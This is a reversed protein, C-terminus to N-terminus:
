KYFTHHFFQKRFEATILMICCIALIALFSPIDPTITQFIKQLFPIFLLGLEALLLLTPIITWKNKWVRLSFMTRDGSVVDFFIFLQALALNVFALTRALELNGSKWGLWFSLLTVLATLPSVETFWRLDHSTFLSNERRPTRKMINHHRTNLALALAPLGDTILNIYLIQIPLLIFPWGLIGGITLALIEGINCGILYKMAAKMNDYIIRGEEVATVITAYNDDTIIMDAAEKAVDTGTIGMAVGINAQKLALADNVGDGTAAVIEGADQLLRVIELKQEPTTRAFVAFTSLRSKKQVSSLTSFQNGTIVEEGKNMLGIHKAITFATLENDGTIMVTRIGAERALQISHAVEPRAPDSIGVFGLFTLDSEVFERSQHEWTIKKSALAIVRLGEKAFKEFEDVIQSKEKHTLEREGDTSIFRTSRALISEPAGKTYVNTGTEDAWVVSMTKTTADFAFEEKLTGSERLSDLNIKTHHALILLAGETRDGVIDFSDRNNKPVLSANNCLVGTKILKHLIKNSSLHLQETTISANQFWIRTVRMENKTLTGTKDTAIVTINGLAEIASLKRLIARKKAMRQTGIALTVTIVAPLGEPVAAVALSIATLFITLLSIGKTLGIAIIIVAAIIAAISLQQAVRKLKIELPTEDKQILSLESAIKGFRTQMGTAVVLATARGKVVTTGLFVNRLDKTDADKTVPMSEGTLSSEEVELHLSTLLTADAPIKVGEELMIIDGPVLYRSDIEKQIGDRVVRITSIAIKKLAQLAHEAKSEQIYGLVANLVVITLILTGEFYNKLILSLATAALLVIVLPSRFQNLFQVIASLRSTQVIENLGYTSLLTKTKHSSLGQLPIM